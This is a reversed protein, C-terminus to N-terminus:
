LYFYELNRALHLSFNKELLITKLPHLVTMITAGLVHGWVQATTAQKMTQEVLKQQSVATPQALHIIKFKVDMKISGVQRTLFLFQFKSNIVGAVETHTLERMELTSEPEARLAPKVSSSAAM